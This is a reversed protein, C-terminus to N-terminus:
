APSSRMPCASSRRTPVFRRSRPAPTPVSGALAKRWDSFGKGEITAARLHAIRAEAASTDANIDFSTGHSIAILADLIKHLVSQVTEGGLQAILTKANKPWHFYTDALKKAQGQTLGLQTAQAVLAGYTDNRFVDAADKAAQKSGLTAVEHQYTASAANMAATQLQQLDNLVPAAGANHYDIFGTKLDIVGKTTNRFDTVLQQNATAARVMSNAYGLTDGQLSVLTQGILAARSAATDGAKNFQDLASVFGLLSPGANQMDKAINGIRDLFQGASVTGNVLQRGTIGLAEAYLNVQDATLKYKVSAQGIDDALIQQRKALSGAAAGAALYADVQGNILGEALAVDGHTRQLAADFAQIGVTVGRYTYKSKDGTTLFKGLSQNSKDISSAQKGFAVAQESLPSNRIEIYLQATSERINAILAQYTKAQQQAIRTANTTEVGTTFRTGPLYNINESIHNGDIKYGVTSKLNKNLMKVADNIALVHGRYKDADSGRSGFLDSAFDGLHLSFLDNLARTTGYLAYQLTNSSTAWRATANAAGEFAIHLGVAAAAYPVIKGLNRGVVALGSGLGSLGAGALARGLRTIAGGASAVGAAGRGLILSNTKFAIFATAAAQLVPVPIANIARSLGDIAGIITGGVPAFAAVLRGVSVALHEIVPVVQKFDDALVQAFKAGAPGTAFKEFSAALKVFQAQVESILPAFTAFGGVLAGALHSGIEGLKESSDGIFNNFAPLEASLKTVSDRFGTLIGAAATKKLETFASQATGISGAFQVGIPTASKMEDKIGKVAFIGAAGLGVLAGGAAVAAGTLPILAPALPILAKLLSGSSNQMQAMQARARATDLDVRVRLPTGTEDFGRRFQVGQRRGADEADGRTQEQFRAWFARADPVVSVSVSGINQDPV